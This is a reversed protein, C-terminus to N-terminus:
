PGPSAAASELRTLQVIVVLIALANVVHLASIAPADVRPAFALVPQLMTLGVVIASRGLLGRGAKSVAAMITLILAGVILSYGAAAHPAFSTAGFAALGAFYFQLVVGILMGYAIARHVRRALVM